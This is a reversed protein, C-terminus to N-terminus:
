GTWPDCRNFTILCGGVSCCQSIIDGLANKAYCCSQTMTWPNYYTASAKQPRAVVAGGGVIVLLALLNIRNRM